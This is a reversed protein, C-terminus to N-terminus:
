CNSLKQEPHSPQQRRARELADSKPTGIAIGCNLCKSAFGNCHGNKRFFRQECRPCHTDLISVGAIWCSVMLPVAIYPIAVEGFTHKVIIGIL